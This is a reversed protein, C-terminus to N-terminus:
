EGAKRRNIKEEVEKGIGDGKVVGRDEEDTKANFDGRGIITEVREAKDKM